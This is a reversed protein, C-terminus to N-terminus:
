PAVPRRVLREREVAARLEALAAQPDAHFRMQVGKGARLRWFWGGRHRSPGGSGKGRGSWSGVIVVYDGAEHVEDIEIRWEDWINFVDRFFRRVGDHGRYVPGDPFAPSVDWEIQPHLLDIVSEFDNRNVAEFGARFKDGHIGEPEDM